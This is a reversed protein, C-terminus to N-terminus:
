TSTLIVGQVGSEQLRKAIESGFRQANAVSTANGVTVYYFDHLKGIAGEKELFRMADVPLVRDPDQNAYVPDYGGHCTQYKESTLNDINAINYEAFKSASAAEIRDPNGKPVIGGSTVLAITAKSINQIPPSPSIHEFVPMSYETEFPKQLLKALIMDIAREAGSQHALQNIRIGRRLYGEDEPTGIQQKLGIKQIFDALRPIVEKMGAVSSSTPIVYINKRYLEVGPNDPYMATVVPIGLQQKVATCTAGCAVGYRGANFAPGAVFVDPDYKKVFEIVADVAIDINDAFYTDGCIITAVINGKENLLQQLPQGPGIPGEKLTPPLNAKDEGGLQAFFQNLYHVVRYKSNKMRDGRM